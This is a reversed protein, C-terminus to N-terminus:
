FIGTIRDMTEIEALCLNRATPRSYKKAIEAAYKEDFSDFEGMYSDNYIPMYHSFCQQYQAYDALLTERCQRAAKNGYNHQLTEKNLELIFEVREVKSSFQFSSQRQALSHVQDECSGKAYPNRQYAEAHLTFALALAAVILSTTMKM